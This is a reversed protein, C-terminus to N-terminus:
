EDSVEREEGLAEEEGEVLLEAKVLEAAAVTVRMGTGGGLERRKAEIRRELETM